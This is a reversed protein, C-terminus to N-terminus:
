QKIFRVVQTGVQLLYTGVPLSSVTVQNGQEVLLMRGKLDFVRLDTPEIGSVYLIDHSPNPYIVINNPQVNDVDTDVDTSSAVFTIKRVNGLVETALVNGSKDLLQIENDVFVLKGIMAIDETLQTGSTSEVLISTAFVQMSCLMVFISFLVRRM